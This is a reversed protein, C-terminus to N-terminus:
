LNKDITYLTNGDTMTPPNLKKFQGCFPTESKEM